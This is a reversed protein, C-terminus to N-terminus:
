RFGAVQAQYVMVPVFRVAFEAKCKACSVFFPKGNKGKELPLEHRFRCEPCCAAVTTQAAPKIDASKINAAPKAAVVPRPTAPTQAPPAPSVPQVVATPPLPEKRSRERKAVTPQPLADDAPVALADSPLADGRLAKKWVLPMSSLSYRLPKGGKMQAAGKEVVYYRERYVVLLQSGISAVRIGDSMKNDLWFQVPESMSM